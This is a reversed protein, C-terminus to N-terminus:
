PTVLVARIASYSSESRWFTVLVHGDGTSAVAPEGAAVGTALLRPTVDVVTGDTEIAIARLDNGSASTETWVVLWRTGDFAVGPGGTIGGPVTALLLGGDADIRGDARTARVGRIETMNQTSDTAGQSWVVLFSQDGASV